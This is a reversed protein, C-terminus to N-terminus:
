LQVTAKRRRVLLLGAGLTLVALIATTVLSGAGTNPLSGTETWVSADSEASSWWDTEAEPTVSTVVDIGGVPEHIVNDPHGPGYFDPGGVHGNWGGPQDTEDPVWGGTDTDDEDVEEDDHGDSPNPPCAPMTFSGHFLVTRSSAGESVSTALWSWNFTTGCHYTLDKTVSVSETGDIAPFKHSYKENGHGDTAYFEVDVTRSFKGKPVLLAVGSNDFTGSEYSDASMPELGPDPDTPEPETYTGLDYTWSTAAGASLVYKFSADEPAPAATVVVVGDFADPRDVTYVVGPTSKPVVSGRVGESALKVAPEEPTVFVTEKTPPQQAVGDPCYRSLVAAGPRTNGPGVKSAVINGAADTVTILVGEPVCMVYETSFGGHQADTSFSLTTERFTGAFSGYGNITATLQHSNSALPNTQQIMFVGTGYVQSSIPSADLSFSPAAVVIPEPETPVASAVIDAVLPEKVPAAPAPVIVEAAKQEQIPAAPAAPAPESLPAVAVPTAAEVAASVEKQPTEEAAPAATTDTTAAETALATIDDTAFSPSVLGAVLM